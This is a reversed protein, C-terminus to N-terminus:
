RKGTIAEDLSSPQMEGSINNSSNGFVDSRADELEVVDGATVSVEALSAQCKIQLNMGWGGPNDLRRACVKGGEVTIAFRDGWPDSNVRKGKDGADSPCSGVSASVCRKNAHNHSAGITVTTTAGSARQPYKALVSSFACSNWDKCPKLLDLCCKQQDPSAKGIKMQDCATRTTGSSRKIRYEM